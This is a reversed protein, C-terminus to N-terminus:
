ENTLKRLSSTIKKLAATGSKSASLMTGLRTIEATLEEKAQSFESSITNDSQSIDENISVADSAEHQRIIQPPAESHLEYCQSLEVGESNRLDVFFSLPPCKDGLALQALSRREFINIPPLNPFAGGFHLHILAQHKCFAGQKGSVCTCVGNVVDVEYSQSCISGSPVVYTDNDVRTIQSANINQSHQVLGLYLLRGKASRGHAANLLRKTMYPEFVSVCFEVFAVSNYAAQRGLVIDKLIRISAEALNNTNHSRNVVDLRHLLVWEQQRELLRSVRESYSFLIDDDELAALADQLDEYTRAYMIQVM